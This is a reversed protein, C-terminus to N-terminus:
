AAEESGRTVNKFLPYYDQPEQDDFERSDDIFELNNVQEKLLIDDDINLVM